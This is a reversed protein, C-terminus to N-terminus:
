TPSSRSRRNLYLLWPLYGAVMGMLVLGVQWERKRVLRYVLYFLAATACWWIIPNAISTINEYCTQGGCQSADVSQVYM